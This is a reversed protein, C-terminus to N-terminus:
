KELFKFVAMLKSKRLFCFVTIGAVVGITNAIFDVFSGHRSDFFFEQFLETIGGYLLGILAVFLFHISTIGKKDKLYFGACLLFTFGLFMSFHVLKDFHPIDLFSSDPISSAPMSIIVFILIGWAIAPIFSKINM